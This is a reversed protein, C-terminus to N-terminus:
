LKARAEIRKRISALEDEAETDGFPFPRNILDIDNLDDVADTKRFAIHAEELVGSLTDIGLLMDAFLAVATLTSIVNRVPQLLTKLHNVNTIASNGPVMVLSAGHFEPDM